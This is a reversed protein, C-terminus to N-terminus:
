GAGRIKALLSQLLPGNVPGVQKHVITGAADIFYTEPVGAVGYDIATRGDPDVLHEYSTGARQLYRECAEPEDSYIVGLFKVDTYRRAAAQLVGHEAKCPGCWTSWFNLVMPTGVLAESSWSKGDLDTLSFAPAPTGELVSPVAHPDNGFSAAFLGLMPLVLAAGGILIARNVKGSRTRM